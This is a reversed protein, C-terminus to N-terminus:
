LLCNVGSRAIVFPCHGTTDPTFSEGLFQLVLQNKTAGAVKRIAIEKVRKLANATSLNIFNVSAILIMFLAAISFIYVYTIDSNPFMEKELNSHLHIDQIPQLHLRRKSLIEEPTDGTSAYFTLMFDSMKAEVKSRNAAKKLLVYSYFGSWTKIQMSKPDQYSEISPMSILYDFQLHTPYTYSKFVGTIKFPVKTNEDVITKGVPNEKQFYKNAMVESIIISHKESLSTNRDGSTFPIKFVNVVDADAFFGDKEEFRKVSFAPSQHLFGLFNQM